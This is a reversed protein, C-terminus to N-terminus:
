VAPHLVGRRRNSTGTVDEAEQHHDAGKSAAYVPFIWRDLVSTTTPNYRESPYFAAGVCCGDVRKIVIEECIVSSQEDDLQFQIAYM